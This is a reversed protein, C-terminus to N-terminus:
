RVGGSPMVHPLSPDLSDVSLPLVVAGFVWNPMGGHSLQHTAWCLCMGLPM